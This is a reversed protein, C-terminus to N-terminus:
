IVLRVVNVGHHDTGGLVGVGEGGQWGKPEAFMDIAFFRERVADPFSAEDDLRGFPCLDGSLHARLHVGGVVESAHVSQPFEPHGIIGFYM